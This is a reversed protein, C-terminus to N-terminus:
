GRGVTPGGSTGCDLDAVRPHIDDRLVTVGTLRESATPRRAASSVTSTPLTCCREMMRLEMPFAFSGLNPEKVEGYRQVSVWVTINWSAHMGMDMQYSCDAVLRSPLTPQGAYPQFPATRVKRSKEWM